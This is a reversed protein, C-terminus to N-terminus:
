DEDPEVGLADEEDRDLQADIAEAILDLQEYSASLELRPGDETEFSILYEEGSRTIEFGSIKDAM